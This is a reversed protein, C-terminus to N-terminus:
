NHLLYRDPFVKWCFLIRVCRISKPCRNLHFAIIKIHRIHVFNNISRLKWMHTNCRILIYVIVTKPIYIFIFQKCINISWSDISDCAVHKHPLHISWGFNSSTWSKTWEHSNFLPTQISLECELCTVQEIYFRETISVVESFLISYVPKKTICVYHDRYGITQM